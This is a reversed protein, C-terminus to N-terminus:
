TSSPSPAPSSVSRPSLFRMKSDGHRMEKVETWHETITVTDRTTHGLVMLGDEKLLRPLLEDDLLRQTLSNSRRGVNKDGFPPDALILHFTRGSSALQPIATLVDQVRLEHRMAPLETAELNQRIMAAHRGAKEISVVSAAGRSLCELGIAGSGSFLDLVHADVIRDGLSNFIAQRVLDPTPRVDYGKPVKIQRGAASGGIIRMDQLM